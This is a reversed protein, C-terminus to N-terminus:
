DGLIQRRVNALVVAHLDLLALSPATPEPQAANPPLETFITNKLSPPLCTPVAEGSPRRWHVTALCLCARRGDRTPEVQHVIRSSAAVVTTNGEIEERAAPRCGAGGAVM